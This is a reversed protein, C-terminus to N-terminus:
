YRWWRRFYETVLFMVVGADVILVGLADFTMAGVFGDRRGVFSGAFFTGYVVISALVWWSSSASPRIVRFPARLSRSLLIGILVISVGGFVILATGIFKDASGPLDLFFLFNMGGVGEVVPLFDRRAFKRLELRCDPWNESGALEKVLAASRRWRLIRLFLHAAVAATVVVVGVTVLADVGAVAGFYILVGSAAALAYSGYFWADGGLTKVTTTAGDMDNPAAM